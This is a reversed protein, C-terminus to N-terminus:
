NEDKISRISVNKRVESFNGVVIKINKLPVINFSVAHAKEPASM